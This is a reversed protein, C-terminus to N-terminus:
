KHNNFSIETAWVAADFQLIVSSSASLIHFSATTAQNLTIDRFKVPPASPSWSDTWNGSCTETVEGFVFLPALWEWYCPRRCFHLKVHKMWSMKLLKLYVFSSIFNLNHITIFHSVCFTIETSLQSPRLSMGFTWELQRWQASCVHTM